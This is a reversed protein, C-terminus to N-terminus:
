LEGEYKYLICPLTNIDACNNKLKCNDCRKKIFEGTSEIFDVGDEKEIYRIIAQIARKEASM